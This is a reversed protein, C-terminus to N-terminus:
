LNIDIQRKNNNQKILHKKCYDDITKACIEKVREETIPQAMGRKVLKRIAEYRASQTESIRQKTASNHTHGSFRPNTIASAESMPRNNTKIEKNDLQVTFYSM